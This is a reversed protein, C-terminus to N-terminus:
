RYSVLAIISHTFVDWIMEGKNISPKTGSCQKLESCVMETKQFTAFSFAAIAIFFLTFLLFAKNTTNAKKM